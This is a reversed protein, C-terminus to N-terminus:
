GVGRGFRALAEPDLEVGLGLGPPPRMSAGRVIPELSLDGSLLAGTSLGCAALTGPVAAGFALGAAIGVCTDIGSTVALPLQAQAAVRAVDRAPSLGGVQVLKVVIADCAGHEALAVVDAAGGVSEDAAVAVGVERRLAALADVDGSALPQEVWEVNPAALRACADRAQPPDWTGNADLRLALGPEAAGLAAVEAATTDIDGAIKRKACTFGDAVAVRAERLCGTLDDAEIVANIPVRPRRAGLLEVLSLGRGRARLDWLATDLGCAVWRPERGVRLVIDEFFSLDAGRLRAAIEPLRAAERQADERAAHPHPAAEGLGITGDAAVLRVIWGSREAIAGRATGLPRILPISFALLDVDVIKM